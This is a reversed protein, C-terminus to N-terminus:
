GILTSASIHQCTASLIGLHIAGPWTHGGDVIKYFHTEVDALNKSYKELEVTCNDQKNIDPIQSIVPTLNLKNKKLWWRITIEVSTILPPVGNYNVLGDETGHFDIPPIENNLLCDNHLTIPVNGAIPAIANQIFKSACVYKYNMFAGYSMGSCLLCDNCSYKSGIIMVLQDLFDVDSNDVTDWQNDIGNPYVIIFGLTVAM